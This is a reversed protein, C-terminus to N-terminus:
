ELMKVSITNFFEKKRWVLEMYKSCMNNVHLNVGWHPPLQAAVEKQTLKCKFKGVLVVQSKCKEYWHYINISFFM